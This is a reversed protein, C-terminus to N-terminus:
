EKATEAQKAAHERNALLVFPLWILFSVFLNLIAVAAALFNGGTAFFAYLGAPMIWPVQVFVPPIIGAYTFGLAIAATVVPALVWPILYMPNLVIPMGFIVPENINFVGMPAALKAITRSDERKSFLLIAIILALTVGSGGMMTYADFSGRTWLYPMQSIDHTANWVSLNELLAPTYIGETIPALVNMGHIGFFWFLQALFEVLLVTFVSSSMGLLPMQIWQSILDNPYAGFVAVCVQTVIASLYIAVVGPILAVFASNVAPPVSDPLKITLKAQVLKIYVMTCILGFILATFLGGSGTLASPIMGGATVSLSVADGNATVALGADKLANVAGADVGPLVYDIVPAFNFTAVVSALSIVGGAVPNVDYSKSLHYGLAFAFCLGLIAISGNYVNGNVNILQACAATFGNDPGWWTTPLDRFFVNLLVAVSGAMTVPMISIFADRIAVLHRQNGIKQALPMFKTEMFHMFGDMPSAM